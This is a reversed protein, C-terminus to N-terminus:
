DRSRNSVWRKLVVERVGYRAFVEHLGMNEEGALTGEAELPAPVNVYVLVLTKKVQANVRNVAHLWSWKGRQRLKKETYEKRGQPYEESPVISQWYEDSYSPLILVAFEAHSFVPGRNYLLYDVGFKVGGRVVWGLSRFHHYVVYNLMFQDDPKMLEGEGAVPFYSSRRFLSLLQSTAIKTRSDSDYIDLVGLGYHLFFAEETTLQLHEKDKIVLPMEEADDPTSIILNSPTTSLLSEAPITKSEITPSFRVNKSPSPSSTPAPASNRAESPSPAQADSLAPPSAEPKKVDGNRENINDLDAFSNPMSLIQMPGTPAVEGDTAMPKTHGMVADMTEDKNAAEEEERRKAEIAEQQVRAREWKVQQREARRQRTVEESTKSAGEGIRRKERDLWSM